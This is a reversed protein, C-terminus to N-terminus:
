QSNNKLAQALLESQIKLALTLPGDLEAVAERESRGDAMKEDILKAYFALQKEQERKPVGQLGRRLDQLFNEKKM